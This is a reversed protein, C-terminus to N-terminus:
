LSLITKCFGTIVPRKVPLLIGNKKEFNTRREEFIRSGSWNLYIKNILPDIKCYYFFAGFYVPRRSVQGCPM